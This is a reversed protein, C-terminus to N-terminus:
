TWFIFKSGRINTVYRRRKPIWAFIRKRVGVKKFFCKNMTHRKRMCYFCTVYSTYSTKKFNKFKKNKTPVFSFSTKDERFRVIECELFKVKERFKALNVNPFSTKSILRM